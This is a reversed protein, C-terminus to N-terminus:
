SALLVRVEDGESDAYFSTIRAIEAPQGKRAGTLFTADGVKLALSVAPNDPDYVIIADGDVFGEADPDTTPGDWKAATDARRTPVAHYGRGDLRAAWDTPM